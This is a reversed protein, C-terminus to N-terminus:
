KRIRLIKGTKDTLSQFIESKMNNNKMALTLEQDGTEGKLLWFEGGEGLFPAGWELLQEVPALARSTVIDVPFPSLDEVKSQLIEAGVETARCVARLFACKKPSPEVLFVKDEGLLSLVLGPFGAGAGIDLWSRKKKPGVENVLGLIQASDLFHRGWIDKETGPGILNIKKQWTLLLDHYIQFKNLTERSVNVAKQFEEPTTM